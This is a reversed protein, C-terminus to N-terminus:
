FEALFSYQSSQQLYMLSCETFIKDFDSITPHSFQLFIKIQCPIVRNHIHNRNQRKIDTTQLFPIVLHM